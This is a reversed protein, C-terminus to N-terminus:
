SRVASRSARCASRPPSCGGPVARGNGRAKLEGTVEVDQASRLGLSIPRRAITGNEVCCCFAQKNVTFVASLPITLADRHEQLVMEATAYM